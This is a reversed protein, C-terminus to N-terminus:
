EVALNLLRQSAAGKQFCVDICCIISYTFTAYSTMNQLCLNLKNNYWWESSLLSTLHLLPLSEDIWSCSFLPWETPCRKLKGECKIFKEQSALYKSLLHWLLTYWQLFHWCRHITQISFNMPCTLLLLCLCTSQSFM